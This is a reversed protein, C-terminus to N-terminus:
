DSEGLAEVAIALHDLWIRRFDPHELTGTLRIEVELGAALMRQKWSTPRNGCVDVQIHHGAVSMFPLLWVKRVGDSALTELLEDCGPRGMLTGVFMRPDHRRLAEQFDLYRRHGEHYTGHGALVVADEPKRETPILGRVAEVAQALDGDDYLLPVGTRVELFGKRPHHYVEAQDRTWHYEVGPVTHLSQVALHTVGRDHLRSLAVAVSDWSEGRSLAKRRVKHATFAWGVEYGPHRERVDAEMAKIGKDAGPLAVGFAALLIGKKEPRPRHHHGHGHHAHDPHDDHDHGHPAHEHGHHHDHDHHHDHHGHDQEHDHHHDHHHHDHSQPESM